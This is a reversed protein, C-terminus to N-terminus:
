LELQTRSHVTSTEKAVFCRLLANVRSRKVRRQHSSLMASSSTTINEFTPSNVHWDSHNAAENLIADAAATTINELVPSERLWGSYRTAEDVFTDAVVTNSEIMPAPSAIAGQTNEKNRLIFMDHDIENCDISRSRLDELSSGDLGRIQLGAM